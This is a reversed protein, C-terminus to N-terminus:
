VLVRKRELFAIVAPRRSFTIEFFIKQDWEGRQILHGMLVYFLDFWKEKLDRASSFLLDKKTKEPLDYFRPDKEFLKFIELHDLEYIRMMLLHFGPSSAWDIKSVAKSRLMKELLDHKNKEVLALMVATPTLLHEFKEDDMMMEFLEIDGGQIATLAVSEFLPVTMELIVQDWRTTTLLDRVVRCPFFIFAEPSSIPILKKEKLFEIGLHKCRRQLNRIPDVGDIPLDFYEFFLLRSVFSDVKEETARLFPTEDMEEFARRIQLSSMMSVLSM